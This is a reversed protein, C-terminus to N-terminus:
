MVGLGQFLYIGKLKTESAVGDSGNRDKTIM